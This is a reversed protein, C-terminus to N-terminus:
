GHQRMRMGRARERDAGRSIQDAGCRRARSARRQQRRKSDSNESEGEGKNVRRRRWDLEQTRAAAAGKESSGREDTERQTHNSGVWKEGIKAETRRPPM